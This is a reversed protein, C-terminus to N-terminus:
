CESSHSFAEDLRPVESAPGDVVVVGRYSVAAASLEAVTVIIRAQNARCLPVPLSALAPRCAHLPTSVEAEVSYSYLWFYPYGRDYHVMMNM